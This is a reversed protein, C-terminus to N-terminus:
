NNKKTFQIGDNGQLKISRTKPTKGPNLGTLLKNGSVKWITYSTEGESTILDVEYAGDIKSSKEGVILKVQTDNSSVKTKCKDSYETYTTVVKSDSINYVIQLSQIGQMPLCNSLWTGNFLKDKPTKGSGQDEIESEETEGDLKDVKRKGNNTNSDGNNGTADSKDRTSDAKPSDDSKNNKTQDSCAVIEVFLFLGVSYFYVKDM